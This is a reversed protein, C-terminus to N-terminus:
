PLPLEAMLLPQKAVTLQITGQGNISLNLQWDEGVPTGNIGTACYNMLQLTVGERRVTEYDSPFIPLIGTFRGFTGSSEAGAFAWESDGVQFMLSLGKSEGYHNPWLLAHTYVETWWSPASEVAYTVYIGTQRYHIEERLVVGDLDVRKNFFEPRSPDSWNEVTLVISGSLPRLTVQPEAAERAAAADFTFTYSLVAVQGIVALDDVRADRLGIDVTVEIRGEQPFPARSIEGSLTVGAEDHALIGGTVLLDHTKEEGELRFRGEDVLAEVWQGEDERPWEFSPGHDTHLRILFSCTQGDYLVERIEPRIDRMWGWDAESYAPQGMRVRCDDRVQADPLDPLMTITYDGTKPAASAIAAEVDPIPSSQATPEARTESLYSAPSYSGRLLMGAAVATTAILLIAAAAMPILLKRPLRGISWTRERKPQRCADLSREVADYFSDPTEPLANRVNYRMKKEM